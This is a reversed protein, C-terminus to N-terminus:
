DFFISFFDSLLFFSGMILITDNKNAASEVTKLAELSNEFFLAEPHTHRFASHLQEASASRPNTFTTVFLHASRPIEPAIESLNKDSSTGYIIFLQGKGIENVSSVTRRIGAPNHAADLVTLPERRVITMRGIFGTNRYLHTIGQEVAASSIAFGHNNMVSVTAAVTSFNDRQYGTLAAPVQPSPQSLYLPSSNDKAFTEFVPFTEPHYEGIVAPIHPKIIGAKEAAIASLTNGLIATHDLSITTIVSVAPTIINTADLRGGLGTEAVVVSCEQDRFHCLAMLWTIEFFSPEVAWSRSRIAECFAIVDAEPICQGNIRIRERFDHIHPSTFLGTRYGSETLISSLMNSVSGKGNTGAVHIFRLHEHPNGFAAALERINDLSPKYASAGQLHYAPFQSFLWSLAAAYTM